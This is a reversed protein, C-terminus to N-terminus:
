CEGLHKHDNCGDSGVEGDEKGLKANERESAALVHECQIIATTSCTFGTDLKESMTM